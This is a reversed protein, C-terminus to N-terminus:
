ETISKFLEVCNTYYEEDYRTEKNALCLVYDDSFVDFYDSAIDSVSIGKGEIANDLTGIVTDLPQLHELNSDFIDKPMIYIVCDGAALELQFDQIANMQETPNFVTKKGDAGEIMNFVLNKIIIENSSDSLYTNKVTEAFTQEDLEFDTVALVALEETEIIEEQKEKSIDTNEDVIAPNSDSESTQNNNANNCSVLLLVVTVVSIFITITKKM